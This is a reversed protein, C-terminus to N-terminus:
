HDWEDAAPAIFAVFLCFAGAITVISFLIGVLLTAFIEM